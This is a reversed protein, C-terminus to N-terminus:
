AAKTHQALYDEFPIGAPENITKCVNSEVAEVADHVVRAAHRFAVSRGLGYVEFARALQEAAANQAKVARRRYFEHVM